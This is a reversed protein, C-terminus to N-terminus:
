KEFIIKEKEVKVCKLKGKKGMIYYKEAYHVSLESEFVSKIRSLHVYIENKSNVLHHITNKMKEYSIQYSVSKYIEFIENEYEALLKLDIGNPHKLFLIYIAKTLHGLKIEMNQFDPLTIRFDKKIIIRSLELDDTLFVNKFMRELIPALVFFKASKKLKILNEKIEDIILLTEADLEINLEDKKVM